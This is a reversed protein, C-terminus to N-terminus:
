MEIKSIDPNKEGFEQMDCKEKRLVVIPEM